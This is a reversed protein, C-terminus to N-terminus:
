CLFLIIYCFTVHWSETETAPVSILNMKPGNSEKSDETMRFLVHCQVTELTPNKVTTCIVYRASHLVYLLHKIFLM